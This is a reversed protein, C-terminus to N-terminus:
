TDTRTANAVPSGNAPTFSPVIGSITITEFVFADHGAEVSRPEAASASGIFLVAVLLVVFVSASAKTTNKM